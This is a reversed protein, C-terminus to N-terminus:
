AHWSRPVYVDCFGDIRWKQPAVMHQSMTEGRYTGVEGRAHLGDHPRDFTRRAAGDVNLSPIGVSDLLALCVALEQADAELTTCEHQRPAESPGHADTRNEISKEM